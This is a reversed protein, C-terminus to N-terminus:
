SRYWIRFRVKVIRPNTFPRNLIHMLPRLVLCDILFDETRTSVQMLCCFGQFSRYSHQELDIAIETEGELKAVLQELQEGTTRCRM